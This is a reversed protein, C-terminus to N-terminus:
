FDLARWLRVWSGRVSLPGRQRLATQGQEWLQKDIGDIGWNNIRTNEWHGPGNYGTMLVLELPNTAALTTFLGLIRCDAAEYLPWVGEESCKVFRALDDPAMFLRRYSYCARRDEPPIELRPRSAVSRLLRIQESEVLNDRDAALGEQAAQWTNLDAFGTIQLFANGMDGILGTLLCIVQGGATKMKPCMKERCFNIYDRTAALNATTYREEYIM